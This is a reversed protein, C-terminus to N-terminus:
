HKESAESGKYFTVMKNKTQFEPNVARNLHYYYSKYGRDLEVLFVDHEPDEKQLMGILDKVKM